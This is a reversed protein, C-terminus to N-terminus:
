PSIEQDHFPGALAGAAQAAQAHAGPVRGSWGAKYAVIVGPRPRHDFDRVFTVVRSRERPKGSTPDTEATV